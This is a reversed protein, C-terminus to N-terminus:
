RWSEVKKYIRFIREWETNDRRAVLKRRSGEVKPTEAAFTALERDGFLKALGDRDMALLEAESIGHKRMIKKMLIRRLRVAIEQQSYPMGGSARQIFGATVEISATKSSYSKPNQLWQDPSSSDGLAFSFVLLGAALSVAFVLIIRFVDFLIAGAVVPALAMIAVMLYLSTRDVSRIVATQQFGIINGQISSQYLKNDKYISDKLEAM